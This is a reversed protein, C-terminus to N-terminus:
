FEQSSLIRASRAGTVSIEFCMASWLSHFSNLSLVEFSKSKLSFFNDRNLMQVKIGYYTWLSIQVLKNHITQWDIEGLLNHSTHLCTDRRTEKNEKMTKYPQKQTIHVWVKSQVPVILWINKWGHIKNNQMAMAIM